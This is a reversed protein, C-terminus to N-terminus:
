PGAVPSPGNVVVSTVAVVIAIFLGLQIILNLWGPVPRTSHDYHSWDHFRRHWQLVTLHSLKAVRDIVDPAVSALVCGVTTWFPMATVFTPVCWGLVITAALDPVSVTLFEQTERSQWRATCTAIGPDKHPLSDFPYHVLWSVSLALFPQEPLLNAILVGAGGHVCWHM